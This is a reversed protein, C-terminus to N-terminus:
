RSIKRSASVAAQVADAFGDKALSVGRGASGRARAYGRRLRRPKTLREHPRAFLALGAGLISGLILGSVFNFRRAEDDYYM